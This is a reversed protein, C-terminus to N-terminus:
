FSMPVSPLESFFSLKSLRDSALGARGEMCNNLISDVHFEVFFDHCTFFIPDFAEAYSSHIIEDSREISAVHFVKPRRLVEIM